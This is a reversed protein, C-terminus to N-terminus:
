GAVQKEQIFAGHWGHYWVQGTYGNVSVMGSVYGDKEFHVTYYGYFTDPQETTSGPQNQDLWRQALQRALDASVTTPGASAGWDMMGGGTVVGGMMETGVGIMGGGQGAM